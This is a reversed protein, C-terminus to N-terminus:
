KAQRIAGIVMGALLGIAAFIVPIGLTTAHSGIQFAPEPIDVPGFFHMLGIAIHVLLGILLGCITGAAGGVILKRFIMGGIRGRM